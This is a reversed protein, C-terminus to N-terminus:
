LLYRIEAGAISELRGMQDAEIRGNLVCVDDEFSGVADRLMGRIRAITRGDGAPM